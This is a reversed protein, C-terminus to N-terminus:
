CNRFQLSMEKKFLYSYLEESANDKFREKNLVTAINLSQKISQKNRDILNYRIRRM